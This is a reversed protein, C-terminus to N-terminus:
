TRRLSLATLAALALCLPSYARRDLRRFRAGTSVPSVLDTRGALGLGGRAALVVAVGMVAVRRLSDAQRPWGAVAAAAVGLTGAVGFSAMAGGRQLGQAGLVADSLEARTDMPWSSGAGWAAHLVGIGLLTTAATAGAVRRASMATSM